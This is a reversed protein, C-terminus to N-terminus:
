KGRIYIGTQTLGKREEKKSIGSEINQKLERGENAKVNIWDMLSREGM